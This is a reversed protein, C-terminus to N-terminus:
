LSRAAKYGDIFAEVIEIANANGKRYESSINEHKSELTKFAIEINKEEGTIPFLISAITNTLEFEVEKGILGRDMICGYQEFSVSFEKAKSDEEHSIYILNADTNDILGSFHRCYVGRLVRASVEMVEVNPWGNNEDVVIKLPAGSFETSLPRLILKGKLM